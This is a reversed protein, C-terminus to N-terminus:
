DERDFQEYSQAKKAPPQHPNSAARKCTICLLILPILVAGAGLGIYTATQMLDHKKDDSTYPSDIHVPQANPDNDAPQAALSADFDAVPNDAM